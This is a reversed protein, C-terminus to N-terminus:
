CGQTTAPPTILVAQRYRSDLDNRYTQDRFYFLSWQKVQKLVTCQKNGWFLVTLPILHGILIICIHIM